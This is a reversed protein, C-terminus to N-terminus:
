LVVVISGATREVRCENQIEIDIAKGTVIMM